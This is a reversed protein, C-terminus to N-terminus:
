GRPPRRRESFWARYETMKQRQAESARRKCTLAEESGEPAGWRLEACDNINYAMELASVRDLVDKLALTWQSDDTRKYSFKRAVLESALTAELEAKVEAASKGKPMAFREPRRAVRIPFGRVVDIAILLRLDRSPTAFDEWAGITEFISAGDPMDVTKGGKNADM